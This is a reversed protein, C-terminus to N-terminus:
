GHSQEEGHPKASHAHPTPDPNPTREVSQIPSTVIVGGDAARALQLSLGVAIVGLLLARGGKSAGLINVPLPAPCFRSHGSIKAAGYGAYDLSYHSNKTRILLQEGPALDKLFIKQVSEAADAGDRKKM